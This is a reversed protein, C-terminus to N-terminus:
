VGGGDVTKSRDADICESLWIHMSEETAAHGEYNDLVYAILTTASAQGQGDLRGVMYAVSLGDDVNVPFVGGGDVAEILAQGHDRLFDFSRSYALDYAASDTTRKDADTVAEISAVLEERLSM